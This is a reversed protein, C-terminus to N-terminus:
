DTWPTPFPAALPPGLDGLKQFLRLLHTKLLRVMLTQMLQKQREMPGASRVECHGQIETTGSAVYLTLKLALFPKRFAM